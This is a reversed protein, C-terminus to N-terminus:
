YSPKFYIRSMLTLYSASIICLHTFNHNPLFSHNFPRAYWDKVGTESDQLEHRDLNEVIQSNSAESPLSIGQSNTADSKLIAALSAQTQGDVLRFEHLCDLAKLLLEHSWRDETERVVSAFCLFFSPYQKIKFVM